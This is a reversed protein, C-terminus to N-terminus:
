LSLFLFGKSFLVSKEVKQRSAEGPDGYGIYLTWCIWDRILGYVLFTRLKILITNILCRVSFALATAFHADASESHISEEWELREGGWLLQAVPRTCPCSELSFPTPYKWHVAEREWSSGDLHLWSSCIMYIITLRCVILMRMFVCYRWLKPLQLIRCM